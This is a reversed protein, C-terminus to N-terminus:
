GQQYGASEFSKSGGKTEEMVKGLEIIMAIEKQESSPLSVL